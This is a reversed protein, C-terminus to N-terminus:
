RKNRPCIMGLKRAHNPTNEDAKSAILKGRCSASIKVPGSVPYWHSGSIANVNRKM